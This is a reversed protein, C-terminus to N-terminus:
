RLRSYVKPDFAERIAEGIFTILFLTTAISTLPILILHWYQLNNRGQNLLDGWSPTPPQLGFGLFDLAVLSFIYTIIAFPAFTIIPTLANPLIHKFMIKWTSQGMSVAASVYDKAKERYYKKIDLLKSDNALEVALDAYDELKNVVPPNELGMQKYAGLVLRSKMYNTPKTVTPTGYYMSEYFSNGSGFYFPDLLVSATGCHNIYGEWSLGDIFKIRDLDLYKNKLDIAVRDDPLM